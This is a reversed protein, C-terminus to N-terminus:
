VNGSPAVDGHAAVDGSRPEARGYTELRAFEALLKDQMGSRILAAHIVNARGLALGMESAWLSRLVPVDAVFGAAQAAKLRGELKRWGDEAGDRAEILLAVDGKGIASSVKEFGTVLVGARRALGLSQAARIALLREVDNALAASAEAKEQAARAFLGKAIAREVTERRASVWLGRGPLKSALDPVVKGEPDLVFRILGTKEGTEGSVICRRTEPGRKM